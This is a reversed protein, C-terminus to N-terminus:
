KSPHTPPVWAGVFALDINKNNTATPTSPPSSDFPKRPRKALLFDCTQFLLARDEYPEGALWRQLSYSDTTNKVKRRSSSGASGVASPASMTPM